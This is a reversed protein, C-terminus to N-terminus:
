TRRLRDRIIRGIIFPARLIVAKKISMRISYFSVKFSFNRLYSIIRSDNM